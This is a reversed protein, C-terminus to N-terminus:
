LIELWTLIKQAIKQVRKTVSNNNFIPFTWSRAQKHLIQIVALSDERIPGEVKGSLYWFIDHQMRTLQEPTWQFPIGQAIRLFRNSYSDRAIPDDVEVGNAHALRSGFTYIDDQLHTDLKDM